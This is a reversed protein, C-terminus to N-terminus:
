RGCSSPQLFFFFLNPAQLISRSQFPSSSSTGPSCVWCSCSGKLLLSCRSLHALAVRQQPHPLPRLVLTSTLLLTTAPNRRKPTSPRESFVERLGPKSFSPQALNLEPPFHYTPASEIPLPSVIIKKGRTSTVWAAGSLLPYFNIRAKQGLTHM